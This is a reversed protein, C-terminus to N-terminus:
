FKDTVQGYYGRKSGKTIVAFGGIKFSLDEKEGNGTASAQPVIKSAHAIEAGLGMGKPRLKPESM